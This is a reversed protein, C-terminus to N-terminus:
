AALGHDIRTLLEEVLRAGEETDLLAMPTQDDLAKTPRTLWHLAKEKTGFTDMSRRFTRFFRVARDSQAPSFQESKRSHALTRRPIVGFEVLEDLSVGVERAMDEVLAIPFGERISGVLAIRERVDQGRASLAREWMEGARIDGSDSHRYSIFPSQGAKGKRSPM